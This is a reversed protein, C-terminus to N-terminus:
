RRLSPELRWLRAGTESLPFVRPHVEIPRETCLRTNKPENLRRALNGFGIAAKRPPTDICTRRALKPHLIRRLPDATSSPPTSSQLLPKLPIACSRRPFLSARQPLPWCVSLTTCPAQHTHAKFRAQGAGPFPPRRSPFVPLSLFLIPSNSIPNKHRRLLRASCALNHLAKLCRGSFM